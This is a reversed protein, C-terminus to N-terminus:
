LKYLLEPQQERMVQYDVFQDPVEGLVEFALERMGLDKFDEYKVLQVIDRSAVNGKSDELVKEDADLEEMLSFDGNGVGVIVASFPMGSMEVLIKKTEQMDHCSGDTIIIVVHYIRNEKGNQQIDTMIQNKVKKFLTYFYTPGALECGNIARYYAELVGMTGKALGKEASKLNWCRQM